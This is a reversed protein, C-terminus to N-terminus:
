TQRRLASPLDNISVPYGKYHGLGQNTLRAEFWADDKQIWAYRPFGGETLQSVWGKAFAEALWEAITERALIPCPTADSRPQPQRWESTLHRKHEPSGIYAPAKPLDSVKPPDSHLKRRGPHKASPSRMPDGRKRDTM